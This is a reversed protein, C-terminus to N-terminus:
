LEGPLTEACSSSNTILVAVSSFRVTTAESPTLQQEWENPLLLERVATQSGIQIRFASLTETLFLVPGRAGLRSSFSTSPGKGIQTKPPCPLAICRRCLRRCRNM